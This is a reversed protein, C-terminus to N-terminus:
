LGNHPGNPMGMPFIDRRVIQTNHAHAPQSQSRHRIQRLDNELIVAPRLGSSWLPSGDGRMRMSMSKSTHEGWEPHFLQFITCLFTENINPSRWWKSFNLYCSVKSSVVLWTVMVRETNSFVLESGCLNSVLTQQNWISM